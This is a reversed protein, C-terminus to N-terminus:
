RHLITRATLFNLFQTLPTLKWHLTFILSHVHIHFTLSKYTSYFSVYNLLLFVTILFHQKSYFTCSIYINKLSIIPPFYFTSSHFLLYNSSSFCPSPRFLVPLTESTLSYELFLLVLLIHLYTLWLFPWSSHYSSVGSSSLGCLGFYSRQIKIQTFYSTLWPIQPSM